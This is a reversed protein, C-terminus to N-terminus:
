NLNATLTLIVALGGIAMLVGTGFAIGLLKLFQAETPTWHNGM